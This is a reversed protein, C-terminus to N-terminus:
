HNGILADVTHLLEHIRFPKTIYAQAGFESQARAIADDRFVASLVAVTPHPCDRNKLQALFDWGSMNPMMLDVLVLDIRNADLVKLGQAGDSAVHVDYGEDRLLLEVLQVIGPEDDIVLVSKKM